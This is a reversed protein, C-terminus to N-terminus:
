LQFSPVFIPGPPLRSLHGLLSRPHGKLLAVQEQAELGPCDQLGSDQMTGWPHSFALTLGQSDPSHGQPASTLAVQPGLEGLGLLGQLGIRVTVISTQPAVKHHWKPRFLQHHCFPSWDPVRFPPPPLLM